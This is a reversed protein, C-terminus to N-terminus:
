TFLYDLILNELAQVAVVESLVSSFGLRSCAPHSVHNGLVSHYWSISAEILRHGSDETLSRTAFQCMYHLTENSQHHVASRVPDPNPWDQSFLPLLDRVYELGALMANQLEITRYHSILDKDIVPLIMGSCLLHSLVIGRDGTGSALGRVTIKLGNFMDYMKWLDSRAVYTDEHSVLESNRHSLYMHELKAQTQPVCCNAFHEARSVLDKKRELPTRCESDMHFDDLLHAPHHPEHLKKIAKSAYSYYLTSFKNWNLRNSDVFNCFGCSELFRAADPLETM